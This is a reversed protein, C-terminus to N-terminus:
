PVLKVSGEYSGGATAFPVVQITYVGPAFVRAAVKETEGPPKESRGVIGDPGYVVLDFDDFFAEPVVEVVLAAGGAPVEIQLHRNECAADTREACPGLTADLFPGGTWRHAPAGPAVTAVARLAPPQPAPPVAGSAPVFDCHADASDTGLGVAGVIRYSHVAIGGVRDGEAVAPLAAAALDSPKLIISVTDADADFRGELGGAITTNQPTRLTFSVAAMGIRQARLVLAHRAHTFDIDFWLGNSGPPDTAQLDMVSVRFVPAKLRSSWGLVVRRIDLAPESRSMADGNTPAAADGPVDVAVVGGAECARAAQDPPALGRAAAVAAVVDVLGHGKDLSTAGGPHRPDPEYGAGATVEHATAELIWEVDAPRLAPNAQFLQAVIGAVHPAAMSTGSLSSYNPDAQAGTHAHCIAMWPRCSSVIETGPAAVDPYTGAAGALGRSSSTDITGNRSGSNWDDYNAVSLVGPTPSSGVGSTRVARGDGGDNGASWVVVVGDRVLLDQLKSAMSEPDYESGGSVGYSNNVVRIPPCVRAPVGAGCPARHNDLVWALATDAGLVSIGAGTGLVVLSAGPAAGHIKRGDLTMVTSGAVTGAVHTGHGGGAPGDTDARLADVVGGAFPVVRLNRVVKSVGNRQFMPHSPDVGSDIVAVTVGAGTVGPGSPVTGALAEEGRTARHSTQMHWALPRDAELFSLEPVDVLDRVAAATGRAAAVGVRDFRRVVELGAGEAATAAPGADGGERAHVLVTILEGPAAADLRRVLERDLRPGTRAGSNAAIGSPSSPTATTESAVPSAASRGISGGVRAAAPVAASVAGTVALM